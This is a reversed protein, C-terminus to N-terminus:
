LGRWEDTIAHVAQHVDVACVFAHRYIESGTFRLMRFGKLALQRDRAKDRQAQEKTREHFEHGDCEVGIWASKPKGDVIGTVHVAFDLRYQEVEHQVFVVAEFETVIPGGPMGDIRFTRDLLQVTILGKLLGLEIPSECRSGLASARQEIVGELAELCNDLYRCTM